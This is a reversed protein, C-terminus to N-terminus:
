SAKQQFAEHCSRMLLRAEENTTVSHDRFFWPARLLVASPMRKEPAMQLCGMVVDQLNKNTMSSPILHSTETEEVTVVLSVISDCEKWPMDGTWVELLVLGLSWIDSPRGYPRARLREPSMFRSTGVVTTQLSQDGKFSAIGFDCLKVSGDSSLLINGPKIDRHIIRRQHLYQLGSLVQYAMACQFCELQKPSATSRELPFREKLIQELSGENMYEMVIIVCDEQLFAGHFGVLAESQIECLARLEKLLMEKRQPSEDLVSCQKIAVPISSTKCDQDKKEEKRSHITIPQQCTRKWIAKHVQSFAGKGLLEQITISSPLLEGRTITKGELRLYDRGITFGDQRYTTDGFQFDNRHVNQGPIDDRREDDDADHSIGWRHGNILYIDIELPDRSQKVPKKSLQNSHSANNEDNLGSTPRNRLYKPVSLTQEEPSSM